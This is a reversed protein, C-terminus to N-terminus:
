TAASLFARLEHENLGASGDITRMNPLEFGLPDKEPPPGTYIAWGQLERERRSIVKRAYRLQERVWGPTTAGYVIMLKDCELLNQELDKRLEAPDGASLPLVSALGVTKIFRGLDRAFPLDHPEANVFVLRGGDIARGTPAEAAARLRSLIEMKFEELGVALVTAGRILAAHEADAISNVDLSVPRWQMVPKSGARARDLQLQVFTRQADPPRRGAVGSLLQVFLACEALDRDVEGTFAEATARSFFTQGPLVRIHQQELYRRVEDRQPELDETVEALFVSPGAGAAGPAPAKPAQNADRLRRLERTLDEALDGLVDYYAREDPQPVPEGVTRTRGSIQDEVWFRYGRLDSIEPEREERDREVVFLRPGIGGAVKLFSNMERKCWESARYAPSYIMLMTAAEAVSRVIEASLPENGDLKPDMWLSFNEPRGLKRTVMTKLATVLTTIWGEQAGPLPVNDVHAYSVFLDHPM